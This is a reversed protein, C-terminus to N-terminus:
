KMPCHWSPAASCVGVRPTAVAARTQVCGGLGPCRGLVALDESGRSKERWTGEAWFATRPRATAPFTVEEPYQM